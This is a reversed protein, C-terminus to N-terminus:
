FAPLPAARHGHKWALYSFVKPRELACLAHGLEILLTPPEPLTRGLEGLGAAMALAAERQAPALAANDDLAAWIDPVPDVGARVSCATANVLPRLLRAPDASRLAGLALRLSPGTAGCRALRAAGDAAADAGCQELRSLGPYLRRLMEADTLESDRDFFEATIQRREQEVADRARVSARDEHFRYYCTPELVFVGAGHEIIRAWMATDCSFGRYLGVAEHVRRRYMFGALGRPTGTVLERLLLLNDFKVAQIRDHEDIAYYPSYAIACDAEMDLAAALAELFYPASRNDASVWTLYEGGAVRVGANIAEHPGANDQHIIRVRPDAPQADLWESTGDTSGDNVIILEWDQRTQACIDAIAAPLWRLHNYTPLVVSIGPGGSM